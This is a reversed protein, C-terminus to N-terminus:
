SEQIDKKYVITRYPFPIEVGERDFREKVSKNLDCGMIFASKPDKSWVYARLNVSSDGFGIVRVQVPPENKAKEERTRNDVYYPHKMAEEQMIAIAKNINSDYSIGIEVFKCVKEDGINANEIVKESLVANPIIVRKNEYTKIVTHRLTIDEVEGSIGSDIRIRDGVRIPQFIAIFVGSIINSFAQQSAFGIVVALVGAGALISVSLARLSPITYIAISVGIIYVVGTLSHKIFTYHTKDVEVIRSSKKMVREFVRVLFRASIYTLVIISVVSFVTEFKDWYREAVDVWELM